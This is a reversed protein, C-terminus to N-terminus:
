MLYQEPDETSGFLSLNLDNKSFIKKFLQDALNMHIMVSTEGCGGYFDGDPSLWGADYGDDINKKLIEYKLYQTGWETTMIGEIMKKKLKLLENDHMLHDYDTNKGYFEYLIELVNEINNEVFTIHKIFGNDALFKYANAFKMYEDFMNNMLEVYQYIFDVGYSINVCHM